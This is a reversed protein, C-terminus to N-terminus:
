RENEKEIVENKIRYGEELTRDAKELCAKAEDLYRMAQMRVEHAEHWVQDAEKQTKKSHPLCILLGVMLGLLFILGGLGFTIGDM